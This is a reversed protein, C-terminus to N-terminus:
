SRTLVQRRPSISTLRTADIGQEGLPLESLSNNDAGSGLNGALKRNALPELDIYSIQEEAHARIAPGLSGALIAVGALALYNRM